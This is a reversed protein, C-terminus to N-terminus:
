TRELGANAGIESDVEMAKIALANMSKLALRAASEGSLNRRTRDAGHLLMTRIIDSPDPLATVVVHLATNGLLDAANPDAGADLLLQLAEICGGAAASVIPPRGGAGSDEVSAGREILLELIECSNNAAAMEVASLGTLYSSYDSGQELLFRAVELHGSKCAHHLPLSSLHDAPSSYPDLLPSSLLGENVDAGQSTLETCRALDGEAVAACLSETMQEVRRLHDM